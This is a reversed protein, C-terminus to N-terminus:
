KEELDIIQLKLAAEYRSKVGIKKFIQSVHNKTTKYAMFLENSIERNGKGEMLLRAVETERPELPNPLKDTILPHLRSSSRIANLAGAISQGVMTEPVGFKQAIQEHSWDRSVHELVVEPSM